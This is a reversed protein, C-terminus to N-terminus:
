TRSTNFQILQQAISALAASQSDSLAEGLLEEIAAAYVPWMEKKTKLGKATIKVINARGDADCSTRKLLQQQELKDILRSLNHKSLLVREGIEVQRLGQEPERGLELLVDYWGLPPLGAAKLRAEIKAMLIQQARVLSVWALETQKSPIKNM